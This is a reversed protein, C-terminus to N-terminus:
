NATNKNTSVFISSIVIKFSNGAENCWDTVSYIHISWNTQEHSLNSSKKKHNLLLLSLRGDEKKFNCSEFFSFLWFKQFILIKKGTM